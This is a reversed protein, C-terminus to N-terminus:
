SVSGMFGSWGTISSPWTTTWGCRPLSTRDGIYNCCSGVSLVADLRRGVDPGFSLYLIAMNRSLDFFEERKGQRPGQVTWRPHIPTCLMHIEKTKQPGRM